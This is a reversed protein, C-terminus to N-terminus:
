EHLFADCYLGPKMHAFMSMTVLAGVVAGLVAGLLVGVLAGVLAGVFCAFSQHSSQSTRMAGPVDTTAPLAMYGSTFMFLPTQYGTHPWRNQSLSLPALITQLRSPKWYPVADFLSLADFNVTSAMGIPLQPSVFLRRFSHARDPLQLLLHSLPWATPTM